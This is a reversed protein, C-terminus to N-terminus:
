QVGFGSPAQSTRRPPRRKSERSDRALGCSVLCQRIDRQLSESVSRWYGTVAGARANRNAARVAGLDNVIKSGPQRTMRASSPTGQNSTKRAANRHDQPAAVAPTKPTETARRRMDTLSGRAVTPTQRLKNVSKSRYERGLWLVSRGSELFNGLMEKGRRDIAAFKQSLVLRVAESLSLEDNLEDKGSSPIAATVVKERKTAESAISAADVSVPLSPALCQLFGEDPSAQSTDPEASLTAVSIQGPGADADACPAVGRGAEELEFEEAAKLIDAGSVSQRGATYAGQLSHECLLHIMRPNGNSYQHIQKLSDATFIETDNAGAQTLRERIYSVTDDCSLNALRCQFTVLQRLQQLKAQRLKTELETQGALVMQLLRTGSVELNLLMRLDDLTRDPLAQGEDIVIVPCDRAERRRILWSRLASLLDSRENSSCPIGFDNLIIRLIDTSTLFTQSLYATSYGESQLVELMCHLITTKGTGPEGTLLMCAKRSEIGFLLQSLAGGHIATSVFQRSNPSVQFAPQQLGFHKYFQKRM